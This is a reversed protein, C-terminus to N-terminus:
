DTLPLCCRASKPGSPRWNPVPNPCRRLSTRVQFSLDEASKSAPGAGGRSDGFAGAAATVARSIGRGAFSAAALMTASTSSAAERLAALSEFPLTLFKVTAEARCM